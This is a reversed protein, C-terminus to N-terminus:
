TNDLIAAVAPEGVWGLALSALTIGLQTGAIYRDLHDLASQVTRAKRDGGQAMEDIRTRRVAVLAFEAAVFFANALVLLLVVLLRGAVAGAGLHSTVQQMAAVDAM